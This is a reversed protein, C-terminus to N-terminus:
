GGPYSRGRWVAAKNRRLGALATWQIALTVVVGAPHFLAALKDDRVRHGIVLRAALSALCACLALVLRLDSTGRVLFIPVLLFPLLHGGGLLVTWVPLSRWTAMGEAANKSFGGWVQRWGKYMRCAAVATGDFLDTAVGSRRLLRPLKLGDHMTTRIPEHGGARLYPERRVAMLQGCGAALSPDAPRRRMIWLPLYGLLLFNIMPVTLLEAMSAATQRPVGSALGVSPRASMFGDIRHLADSALTVDADVFLFLDGSARQGLVHCAHQKGCWGAPLPPALELRVRRDSQAMARVIEATADTSHDDLVVVEFDPHDNALASAVVTGINGEENRAPILVSVRHTPTGGPTRLLRLNALAVGLPLAALVLMLSLLVIM